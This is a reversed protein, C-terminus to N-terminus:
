FTSILLFHTCATLGLFVLPRFWKAFKIRKDAEAFYESIPGYQTKDNIKEDGNALILVSDNFLNGLLCDM